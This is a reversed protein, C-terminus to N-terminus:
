ATEGAGRHRRDAHRAEQRGGVRACPAHTLHRTVRHGRVMTPPSAHSLPRRLQQVGQSAQAFGRTAAIPATRRQHAQHAEVCAVIQEEAALAQVGKRGMSALQCSRRPGFPRQRREHKMTRASLGSREVALGHRCEREKMKQALPTRGRASQASGHDHRVGYVGGAGM